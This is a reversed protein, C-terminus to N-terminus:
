RACIVKTTAACSISSRFISLRHRSAPSTPKWSRLCSSRRTPGGPGYYLILGKDALIASSESDLEAATEIERTAAASEGVTM